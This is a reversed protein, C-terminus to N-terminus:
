ERARRAEPEPPKVGRWWRGTRIVGYLLAGLEGADQIDTVLGFRGDHHVIAFLVVIVPGGVFLNSLTRSALVADIPRWALDATDQLRFRAASAIFGLAQRFKAWTATDHGSEGALHARWEDRLAPRSSGALFVALGLTGRVSAAAARQPKGPRRGQRESVFNGIVMVPSLIVFLLYEPQRTLAVM